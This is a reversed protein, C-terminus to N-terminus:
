GLVSGNMLQGGALQWECEGAWPTVQIGLAPDGIFGESTGPGRRPESHGGRAVVCPM